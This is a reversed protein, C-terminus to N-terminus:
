RRFYAFLNLALSIVLSIVLMSALPAYFSIHDTKITLDGPLRGFFPVRPGLWMVLGAAIVVLGFLVLLRGVESSGM